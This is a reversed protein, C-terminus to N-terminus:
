MAEVVRGLSLSAERHSSINLSVTVKGTTLSLTLAAQFFVAKKEPSSSHWPASFAASPQEGPGTLPLMLPIIHFTFFFWYDNKLILGKWLHCIDSARPLVIHSKNEWFPCWWLAPIFVEPIKNKSIAFHCLLLCLFDSGSTFSTHM